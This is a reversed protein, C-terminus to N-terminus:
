IEATGPGIRKRIARAVSGVRRWGDLDNDRLDRWLADSHFPCFVCASKPPTPFGARESWRLCDNRSMGEEVLPFRHVIYPYQSPKMRVAEDVSIGIWQEVQPSKPARQRPAIGLLDRVKKRIPDIKFDGTCQRNLM